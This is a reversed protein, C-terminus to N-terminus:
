SIWKMKIYQELANTEATTLYRNYYLMECFYGEMPYAASGKAGLSNDLSGIVVKVSGSFLIPSSTAFIGEYFETQSDFGNQQYFNYKTIGTKTRVITIQTAGLDPQTGTVVGRQWSKNNWSNLTRTNTFNPTPESVEGYATYPNNGAQIRIDLSPFRPGYTRGNGWVALAYKTNFDSPPNNAQTVTMPKHVFVITKEQSNMQTVSNNSLTKQGLVNQSYYPMHIANNGNISAITYTPGLVGQSNTLAVGSVKDVIKYVNQNAVVTGDNITSADAADWWLTLGSINDPSGFGIM